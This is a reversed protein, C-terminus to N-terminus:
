KLKPCDQSEMGLISRVDDCLALIEPPVTGDDKWCCNKLADIYQMSIEKLRREPANGNEKPCGGDSSNDCGNKRHNEIRSDGAMRVLPKKFRKYQHYIDRNHIYTELNSAREKDYKEQLCCRTIRYLDKADELANHATRHEMGCIYKMDSLSLTIGKGYIRRTLRKTIDQLLGSIKRFRRAVFKHNKEIDHRLTHADNGWTFIEKVPYEQLLLYLEQFVAEYSPAEDIEEQTLGTLEKCYNTLKANYLPHIPSYYTRVLNFRKDCLVMGVSLLEGSHEKDFFTDNEMFCTYEADFFAYYFKKKTNSNNVGDGRKTM